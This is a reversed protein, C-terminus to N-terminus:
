TPPAASRQRFDFPRLPQAKLLHPIKGLSRTALAGKPAAASPL